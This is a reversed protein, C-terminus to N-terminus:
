KQKLPMWQILKSLRLDFLEIAILRVDLPKCVSLSISLGVALGCFLIRGTKKLIPLLHPMSFSNWNTKYKKLYSRIHANYAHIYLGTDANSYFHILISKHYHQKTMETNM